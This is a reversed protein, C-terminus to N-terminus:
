LTIDNRLTVDHSADAVGESARELGKLM